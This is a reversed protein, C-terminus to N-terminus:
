IAKRIQVLKVDNQGITTEFLAEGSKSLIEVQKIIKAFIAQIQDSLREAEDYAARARLDDHAEIADIVDHAKMHLTDHLADIANWDDRIASHKVEISHYFHGFRCKHGDSQIPKLAMESSMEHLKDMWNKHSKVASLIHDKFTSNEIRNVGRNVTATMEKVIHSLSDDINSIKGAAEYAIEADVSIQNAMESIDESSAAANQMASTIESTTVSIQQSM